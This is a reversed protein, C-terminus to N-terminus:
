VWRVRSSEFAWNGRSSESCYVRLEFKKTKKVKGHKIKKHLEFKKRWNRKLSFVTGVHTMM